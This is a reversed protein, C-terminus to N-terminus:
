TINSTYLISMGLYSTNCIQVITLKCFLCMMWPIGAYCFQKVRLQVPVQPHIQDTCLTDQRCRLPLPGPPTGFLLDLVTSRWWHLVEWCRDWSDGSSILCYLCHHCDCRRLCYIYNKYAHMMGLHSTFTTHMLLIVYLRWTLRACQCLATVSMHKICVYM